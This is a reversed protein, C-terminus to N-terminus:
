RSPSPELPSRQRPVFWSTIEGCLAACYPRSPLSWCSSRKRLPTSTSSSAIDNARDNPPSGVSKVILAWSYRAESIFFSAPKTDCTITISRSRVRVGSTEFMSATIAGSRSM